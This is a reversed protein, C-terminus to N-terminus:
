RGNSQPSRAQLIVIGEQTGRLTRVQIAPLAEQAQVPQVEKVEKKQMQALSQTLAALLSKAREDWPKEQRFRLDALTAPHTEAALNDDPHRLSLHLTGKNQGLDLKAAQDPTVVLTVSRLEKADVKNDAPADVRQDVALIEVNQLLTTTSGGGTEDNSATSSVTLLVDVRNGPLIFGAVGSAVNPTHITFARMGKPILPALGRGAGRALLKSDLVPDDKALPIFVFRELADEVRTMAGAPVLDKPYERLTLADASIMGGRPIATTAVVISVTDPKPPPEQNRLRKIGVAASGGSALALLVLLLTRLTV